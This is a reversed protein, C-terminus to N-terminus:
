PLVLIDGKQLTLDLSGSAVPESNVSVTVNYIGTKKYLYDVRSAQTHTSGGDGFDWDFWTGSPYTGQLTFTITGGVM